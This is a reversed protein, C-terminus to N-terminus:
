ERDRMLCASPRTMSGTLIVVDVADSAVLHAGGTAGSCPVFQLAEKPVGANWFCEVLVSAVLVTHSAPKLIVTNGAALAAAIGGCPIAIPFNWPPVVVVVGKPTATVCERQFFRHATNAYYEVFDIAESVEPDSETLLKGGDALAAGMLDHRRKRLEHAVESLITRRENPTRRRWAAPDTQACHLAEDIDSISAERYRAVVVGPRSPDTAERERRDEHVLRGAIMLPITVAKDGHRDQWDDIITHAWDRNQALAFDTDPENVFEKYEPSVVPRAPPANRNQTRRPVQPVDHMRQFSRAFDDALHHWEDSDVQLKFTHRLFNDPGTNEDLRRILYGIANVFDDQKTAPAYLLINSALEALARRQHNAMGELMEFQVSDAVGREVTLVLAYAIDFLNHSAVGVKVAAANEPRLGYEIMCKYNADTDIKAQYPAQPWVELSAEVREMEMNAGKVIRITVPAGGAAVRKKSWETIQM